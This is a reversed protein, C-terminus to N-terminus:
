LDDHVLITFGVVREPGRWAYAEGSGVAVLRAREVGRAVLAELVTGARHESLELNYASGGISDAHGEVRLLRVEPHARLWAALADLGELADPNLAHSDLEFLPAQGVVIQREEVRVGSPRLVLHVESTEGRRVSVDTVAPEFGPAEARLSPRGVREDAEWRGEVPEVERGEVVLRTGPVVAGAEDTIRVVLRGLRVPDMTVTTLTETGGALWQTVPVPEFGEAEVVVLASGPPLDITWPEGGLLSVSTGVHTLTVAEPGVARVTWRALADPCGDEDEFDNFVEPQLPCHDVPDLVGDGDNDPDPCGDRDHFGDRDEPDLRCADFLDRIGDGDADRREHGTVMVGGLVRSLPTGVGRTLGLSVSGRAYVRGFLRHRGSALLEVPVDRMSGPVGLPSSAMVELAASSRGGIDRGYAMAVELRNGIVVGPLIDRAQMRVQAHWGVTGGFAPLENAFGFVMANGSLLPMSGSSARELMVRLALPHRTGPVSFTTWVALDGRRTLKEDPWVAHHVPMALGVGLRRGLAFTTALEVTQVSQLLAHRTGGPRALAVPTLLTQANLAASGTWAPGPDPNRVSVFRGGELAQLLQADFAHAPGVLLLAVLVARLLWGLFLVWGLGPAHAHACGGGGTVVESATDADQFIGTEVFVEACTGPGGLLGGGTVNECDTDDM